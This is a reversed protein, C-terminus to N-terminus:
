VLELIIKAPEIRMNMESNIPTKKHVKATKAFVLLKELNKRDVGSQKELHRISEHIIEVGVPNPTM